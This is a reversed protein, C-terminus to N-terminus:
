WNQQQQHQQQQQQNGGDYKFAIHCHTHINLSYDPDFVELFDLLFIIKLM